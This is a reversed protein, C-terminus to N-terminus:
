ELEVVILSNKGYVVKGDFAGQEISLLEFFNDVRMLAYDDNEFSVDVWKSSYLKDFIGVNDTVYYKGSYTIFAEDEIDKQIDSVRSVTGFCLLAAMAFCIVSLAVSAWFGKRRAYVQKPSSFNLTKKKQKKYYFYNSIWIVLIIVLLVIMWFVTSFIENKAVKELVKTYEVIM